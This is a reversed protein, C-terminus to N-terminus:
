AADVVLIADATADITANLLAISRRLEEEAERHETVDFAIGLVGRISGEADRLPEVHSQFTRGQWTAQYTTAEGELARLHAAIPGFEPDTTQFYVFLNVGILDRGEEGLLRRGAGAAETFRLDRDITWFIAPSQSLVM